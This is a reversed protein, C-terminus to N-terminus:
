TVSVTIHVLYSCKYPIQLGCYFWGFMKFILILIFKKFCWITNQLTISPLLDETINHHTMTHCHCLAVGCFVLIELLVAALVQFTAVLILNDLM